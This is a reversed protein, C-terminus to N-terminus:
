IHLKTRINFVVTVKVVSRPHDNVKVPALLLVEAGDVEVLSLLLVMPWDVEVSALLLVVAGGVEFSTLLLVVAKGVEVPALLLVVVADVEVPDLLLVVADGVEVAATPIAQLERVIIKYIRCKDLSCGCLGVKNQITHKLNGICICVVHM